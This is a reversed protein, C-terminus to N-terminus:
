GGLLDGLASDVQGLNAPQSLDEPEAFLADFCDECMGSIQTEKWGAASHVNLASFGAGCDSCSLARAARAIRLQEFEKESEPLWGGKLSQKM